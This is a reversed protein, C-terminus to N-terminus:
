RGGYPTAYIVGPGPVARDKIRRRWYNQYEIILHPEDLVWVNVGMERRRVHDRKQGARAKKGPAKTEVLEMPFGPVTILRDPVNRKGPSTFKECTGGFRKVTRCLLKEIKSEKM